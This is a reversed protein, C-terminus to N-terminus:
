WAHLDTDQVRSLTKFNPFVLKLFIRVYLGAGSRVRRINASIVEGRGPKSERRSCSLRKEASIPSERGPEDITFSM